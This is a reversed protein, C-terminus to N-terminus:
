LRRWALSDDYEESLVNLRNRRAGDDVVITRAGRWSLRKIAKRALPALTLWDPNGGTASQGDQSVSSVANRELYDPQTMLWAAQFCVALRLWYADRDKLGKREVGEILGTHLEIAAAALARTPEDVTKGTLTAVQELTAWQTM